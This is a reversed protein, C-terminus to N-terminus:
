CIGHASQALFEGIQGFFLRYGLGLAGRQFRAVLHPGLTSSGSLTSECM